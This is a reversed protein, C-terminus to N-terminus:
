WNLIHHLFYSFPVSAVALVYWICKLNEICNRIVYVITKFAEAREDVPLILIQQHRLVLVLKKTDKYNSL